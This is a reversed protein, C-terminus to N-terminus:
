KPGLPHKRESTSRETTGQPGSLLSFNMVASGHLGLDLLRRRLAVSNASPILSSGNGSNSSCPTAVPSTSRSGNASDVTSSGTSDTDGADVAPSDAHTVYPLTHQASIRLPSLPAPNSAPEDDNRKMPQAAAVTIATTSTSPPQPGSGEADFAGQSTEDDPAFLITQGCVQSSFSSLTSQGSFFRSDEEAHRHRRHNTLARVGTMGSDRRPSLDPHAEEERTWGSTSSTVSWDSDTPPTLELGALDATMGAGDGLTSAVSSIEHHMCHCVEVPSLSMVTFSASASSRASLRSKEM